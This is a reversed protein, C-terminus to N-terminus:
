CLYWGKIKKSSKGKHKGIFSCYKEFLSNFLILDNEYKDYESNFYDAMAACYYVYIDDYPPQVILTDGMNSFSYTKYDKQSPSLGLIEIQLRGELTNIWSIYQENGASCPRLARSRSICHSINM